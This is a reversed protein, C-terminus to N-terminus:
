QVAEVKIRRKGTLLQHMLADREKRLAAAYECSAEEIQRADSLIQAIRMQEDFPPLAFSLELFRRTSLNYRTSGQALSVIRRRVPASRFFFRAFEPAMVGKEFVRFGFCFSNLYLQEPESLVVSSMGVEEPTESSTTFVIDGSAVLSQSEDAAVRVYDLNSLDIVSNEFV